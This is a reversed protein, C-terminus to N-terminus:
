QLQALTSESSSNGNMHNIEFQFYIQYISGNIPLEFKYDKLPLNCPMEQVRQLSEKHILKIRQKDFIPCIIDLNVKVGINRMKRKAKFFTEISILDLRVINHNAYDNTELYYLGKFFIDMLFYFTDKSDDLPKTLQLKVPQDKENKLFLFPALGDVELYYSGMNEILIHEYLRKCVM